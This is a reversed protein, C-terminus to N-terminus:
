AAVLRAVDGATFAVLADIDLTAAHALLDVGYRDRLRCALAAVDVSDLGLDGELTAEPPVGPAGTLEVLIEAIEAFLEQSVDPGYRSRDAWQNCM